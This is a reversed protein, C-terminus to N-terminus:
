EGPKYRTIGFEKELYDLALKALYQEHIKKNTDDDSGSVITSAPGFVIRKCKNKMDLILSLIKNESNYPFSYTSESEKFERRDFIEKLKSVNDKLENKTYPIYQTDYISKIIRYCIAYGLGIIEESDDIVKEISAFFAEFVDEKMANDLGIHKVKSEDSCDDKESVYPLQRYRIFTDLGLLACYKPLLIHSTLMNKQLSLIEVGANGRAMIEPFRRSLYWTTCKNVTTDGLHEFIEYNKNLNEPNVSDHTTALVFTNIGLQIYKEAHAKSVGGREVLVRFVFEKYEGLSKEHIPPLNTTDTICYKRKFKKKKGASVYSLVVDSIKEDKKISININESLVCQKDSPPLSSSPYSSPPHLLQRPRYKSGRSM